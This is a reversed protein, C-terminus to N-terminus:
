QSVRFDEEIKAISEAVTGNTELPPLVPGFANSTEDGLTRFHAFSVVAVFSHQVDWYEWHLDQRSRM